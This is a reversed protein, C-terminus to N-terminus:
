CNEVELRVIFCDRIFFFVKEIFFKNVGYILFWYVEKVVEIEMMNEIVSFLVVRDEEEM